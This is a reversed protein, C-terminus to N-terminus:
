EGALASKVFKVNDDVNLIVNLLALRLSRFREVKNVGKSIRSKYAAVIEDMASSNNTSLDAFLLVVNEKTVEALPVLTSLLFPGEGTTLHNALEPATEKVMVGSLSLYRLSIVTSYNHRTPEEVEAKSPILFVNAETKDFEESEAVSLTSFHIAQLLREYRKMTEGGLRAGPKLKRGFLVYTYMGFGPEESHMETLPQWVHQNPGALDGRVGVDNLPGPCGSIILLQSLFLLFCLVQKYHLGNQWKM